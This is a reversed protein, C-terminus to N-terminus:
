PEPPSRTFFRFLMPRGRQWGLLYIPVELIFLALFMGFLTLVFPLRYHSSIWACVYICAVLQAVFWCWQWPSAKIPTNWISM